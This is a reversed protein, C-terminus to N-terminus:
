TLMMISKLMMIVHLPPPETLTFTTLGYVLLPKLHHSLLTHYLVENSYTHSSVFHLPSMQDQIDFTFLHTVLVIDTEM